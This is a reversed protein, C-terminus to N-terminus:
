FWAGPSTVFAPSGDPYVVMVMRRGRCKALPNTRFHEIGRSRFPVTEVRYPLGAEELAWLVRIDCVYGRPLEPVWDFTTLILNNM